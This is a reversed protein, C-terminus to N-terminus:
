LSAIKRLVAAPLEKLKLILEWWSFYDAYPIMESLYALVMVMNWAALISVGLVAWATRGRSNAKDMLASLGIVFIPTSSIFARHGFSNGFWWMHWSANVYLQMLFAALLLWGARPRAKMFLVLGALAALIIPNWSILGHKSSFLVELIKPSAAYIFSEGSYSYVLFSGFVAKWVFLQVAILPLFGALAAVLKGASLFWPAKRERAYGILADVLPVALFTVDQQRIIIMLGAAAGLTFCAGKGGEGDRVISWMYLFLAVSFFSSLHSMFPERMFYYIINSSSFIALVSLFSIRDSFYRKALKCSIVLGAYGYVLAGLSFSLQYIVSYGTADLGAGLFNLILVFIHTLLYFPLVTLPFGVSYKNEPRGIPSYKFNTIKLSEYENALDLDRDVVVSRVYSFYSGDDNTGIIDKRPDIFLTLVLFVIASLIVSLKL